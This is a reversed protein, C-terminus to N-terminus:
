SLLSALFASISMFLDCHHIVLLVQFPTCEGHLWSSHLLATVKLFNPPSHAPM